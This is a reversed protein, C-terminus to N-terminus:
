DARRGIRDLHLVGGNDRAIRFFEYGSETLLVEQYPASSLVNKFVSLSIYFGEEEEISPRYGDNLRQLMEYIDLNIRMEAKQGDGFDYELVLCQPLSELYPQDMAEMRSRLSFREGDFLRYSRITGREVRRVRLALQNGLRGPDTLGEGRNVAKIIATVEEEPKPGPEGIAKMFDQISAYPLMDQWAADRCEFSHKRRMHTLYRRHKELLTRRKKVSYDRPLNEFLVELITQDYGPRDEFSFRSNAKAGPPLFGLERDLGPNSVHAIDIERLLSVLRDASGEEGGQWSNFYYCGLIRNQSEEGGNQYLQHIGECDRTGVLMYALASRLDRMTIHLRGRLHTITFLMKLRETVKPGAVPDQFTRANHLAYCKGKIDCNDCAEWFDKQTMRQILRELISAQGEEPEAVVSRLNLNIIAVGDEPAGGALGRQIHRALLPYEDQHEMFFDVLRGENIAIIRTQRTPWATPDNGKLPQFFKQLVADNREDGEDQSGDYNSFFKQSKLQFVAGNEGRHIQAGKEEAFSEFQQIFATKGDGANGSIIVVQFVGKLMAPQLREDLFTPVYTAKGIEDLGRTGANSVQSQSYLTLLHTVFPNCNPRTAKLDMLATVKTTPGIEGTTLVSRYQKVKGFAELFSAASAFRDKRDPAIMRSVVDVLATSLDACGDFQRPDKPPKHLPPTPDDFPYEGTLCEYFTVGLAYLDRDIRDETSPEMSYDYDPPLYRQTGGGGHIDHKESVAVNFDIIKVGNDTWLLNSPKIDQHQVGNEHLHALGEASQSVIKVADDLSLADNDILDSVDLGDVYDFVIYPTQKADSFRDAWVVKVVHPHDPLNTLAKYERRLRDFVSRRDKTVLKIVRVVDGYSDFVKYVVGFGGAGLKDQVRFRNGLIFDQPLNSLDEPLAHAGTSEGDPATDDKAEPLILDDLAKKAVAASTYRDEPDFECLRQLWADFGDPLDPKHESPQVLFEGDAEMMEEVNGFPREGVLLEYFVIGASFLDGAISAESPDRDCEPAQYNSDLDDVIQDAITSTRNKGVRAFDFATVRCPGGKTVLIADPTLNRHIVEAKHAHDLASLVDRMVTLKQDFTLALSAKAIHQRLAQGAVDDTVLVFGDQDETEFFERVTLVNEHPNMHAVASYANRIRRREAEREADELYPDAKYVRLRAMGGSKGLLSHKARYEAFRDTGGLKEEVQWDRFCTVSTKPQAKGVIAKKIMPHLTRIDKNRHDPIRDTDHFYKLFRKLDTVDPGDRGEPDMVTADEATLLVAAQVHAKRLETKGPNSDKIISAMVKAHQRLKALPSHFPPRGEPYWKPGYVDINGRTGKIDVVYVAHAALIALDIEFVEKGQRMEFNHILLWSEPLRDRLLGIAKRESDNAPQGSCETIVTAM